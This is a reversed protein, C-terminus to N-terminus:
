SVYSGCAFNEVELARPLVGQEQNGLSISSLPLGPDQHDFDREEVESHM